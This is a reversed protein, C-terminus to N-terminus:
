SDTFLFFDPFFRAETPARQASIQGGSGTGGGKFISIFCLWRLCISYVNKQVYFKM